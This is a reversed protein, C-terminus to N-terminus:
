KRKGPPQLDAAMVMDPWVEDTYSANTKGGIRMVARDIRGLVSDPEDEAAGLRHIGIYQQLKQDIWTRDDSSLGVDEAEQVAREFQASDYWCDIKRGVPRATEKHQYCDYTNWGEV